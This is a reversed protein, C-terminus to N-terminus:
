KGSGKAYKVTKVVIESAAKVGDVKEGLYDRAKNIFPIALLILTIIFIIRLMTKRLDRPQCKKSHLFVRSGENEFM